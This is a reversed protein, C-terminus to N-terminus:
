EKKERIMSRSGFYTAIFYVGYIVLVFAATALIYPLSSGTRLAQLFNNIMVMAFISHFAALALPMLFYIAIQRFLAGHIMKPEAGLRRLLGYRSVNDSAESLQQIALIAAGAILFTFGLYIAIYTATVKMSTAAAYMELRTMGYLAVNKGDTAASLADDVKEASLDSKYQMNLSMMSVPLGEVASDPVVVVGDDTSVSSTFINTDAVEKNAAQLTRGNVDLKGSNQLYYNFTVGTTDPSGLLYFQGDALNVGKRGSMEMLKNYDSQRVLQLKYYISDADAPADVKKKMERTYDTLPAGDLLMTSLSPGAYVNFEVASSAYEGVDFGSKKLTGAITATRTSADNPDKFYHDALLGNPVTVTASYPTKNEIGSSMSNAMGIGGSFTCITFFLMLCIISLSVFATNIRSNIQRMVFMNLGKYYFRKNRRMIRLLFGSLSFFFLLTGVCGFLIAKGLEPGMEVLSNSLALYYAYALMVVSVVFALVTVVGNRFHPKENQRAGHILDILKVRSVAIFNFLIVILFIVGFCLVTKVLADPSFTFVYQTLKVEFLSATLVSMGQSAFVGIVLGIVLALVGVILTELMLLLSVSRRGMGLMQYVGLEKKRRKVLFNNAYVVLFGLVVAVFVSFYGVALTLLEMAQKTSTSVEMMAKQTHISNFVYFLCVAFTLTLFYITYDKFSKRVNKFALKCFM